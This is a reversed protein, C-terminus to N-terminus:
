NASDEPKGRLTSAAMSRGEHASRRMVGVRRQEGAINAVPIAATWVAEAALSRALLGVAYRRRRRDLDRRAETPV